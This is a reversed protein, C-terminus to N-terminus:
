LLSEEYPFQSLLEYGNDTVLIQEELKVGEGVEADGIYSEVCLTTMPQLVGDYGADDFDLAHLIYPYEGTMGVGHAIVFYRGDVYKEPIPWAKNAIEAFSIGARCLEMNHHIQEYALQYMNKQAASPKSNGTYFTRSFDAYYGGPGVVDTDLGVLEGAALLKDSCEQFWPQTRAGSSLLRTEVYDGNNAIIAQHLLSWLENESLGPRLQERMAAVASETVRLSHRICTIEDDSKQMRALEVANQADWVDYGRRRMEEAHLHSAAEMALRRGCGFEQLLEAIGDGWLRCREQQRNAAAVYSVTVAPLVRDVRAGHALHECGPFEFLVVDGELPVFLYRSAPNRSTFIQMNRAGTAYRINVADFLVCADYELRRMETRLRSLRWNQLAGIDATPVAAYDAFEPQRARSHIDRPNFAPM